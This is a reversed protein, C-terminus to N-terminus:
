KITFKMTSIITAQNFVSAIYIGKRIGSLPIDYNAPYIRITGGSIDIISVTCGSINGYLHLIGENCVMTIDNNYTSNEDVRAARASIVPRINMGGRKWTDGLQLGSSDVWFAEAKTSPIIPSGSNTYSESDTGTWYNGWIGEMIIEGLEYEGGAPLFFSKENPGHVRTGNSEEETTWENWCYVCLEYVEQYTPLRWDYGWEKRAVDYETGSINKGIDELVYWACIGDNDVGKFHIYDEWLFSTKPITDGWAFFEGANYPSNSGINCTAWLTKSPLGLDVYGHGGVTGDIQNRFREDPEEGLCVIPFIFSMLFFLIKNNM